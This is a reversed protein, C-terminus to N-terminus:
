IKKDVNTSTAVTALSYSPQIPSLNLAYLNDSRKTATFSVQDKASIFAKNDAFNLTYGDKTLQSVSILNVSVGPVYVARHFLVLQGDPRYARITGGLTASLSQKGDATNIFVTRGLPKLNIFSSKDSSMNITAGSDLVLETSSSTKALFASPTLQLRNKFEVLSTTVNFSFENGIDGNSMREELTALRSRLDLNEAALNANVTVSNDVVALKAEARQPRRSEKEAMFAARKADHSPGPPGFCQATTHRGKRCTACELMGGNGSGKNIREKLSGTAALAKARALLGQEEKVKISELDADIIDIQRLIQESTYSNKIADRRIDIRIPSWKEGVMSGLIQEVLMGENMGIKKNEDTTSKDAAALRNKLTRVSSTFERAETDDDLTLSKLQNYLLTGLANVDDFHVAKLAGFCAWPLGAHAYIIARNAEDCHGWLIGYATNKDIESQRARKTEGEYRAYDKTSDTPYEVNPIEKSGDIYKRLGKTSLAIRFAESWVHWNSQGLIPITIGNIPTSSKTETSDFDM